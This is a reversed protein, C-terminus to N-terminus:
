QPKLALAKRKPALIKNKEALIGHCHMRNKDPILKFHLSHWFFFFRNVLFFLSAPFQGYVM